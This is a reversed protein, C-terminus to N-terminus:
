TLSGASCATVDEASDPGASCRSSTSDACSLTGTAASIAAPRASATRRGCWARRRGGPWAARGPRRRPRRWGRRGCGSGACRARSPECGAGRDQDGGVDGGAADVDVVDGQDHLEVRGVVVLVVQVARATGGPGPWRCPPRAPRARGPGRAGAAARRPRRSRRGAVIDRDAVVHDPLDGLGAGTGGGGGRPRPGSRRVEPLRRFPRRVPGAGRCSPRPRNRRASRSPCGTRRRRPALVGALGPCRCARRVAPRSVGRGGSLEPQDLAGAPRLGRRPREPPARRGRLVSIVSEPRDAAGASDNGPENPGSM